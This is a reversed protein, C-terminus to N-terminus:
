KRNSHCSISLVVIIKNIPKLVFVARRGGYAGEFWGNMMLGDM